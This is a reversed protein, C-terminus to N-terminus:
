GTLGLDDAVLWGVLDSEREEVVVAVWCAVDAEGFDDVCEVRRWKTTRERV